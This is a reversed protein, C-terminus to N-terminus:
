RFLPGPPRNDIEIQVCHVQTKLLSAYADLVITRFRESDEDTFGNHCHLSHAILPKDDDDLFVGGLPDLLNMSPLQSASQRNIEEWAKQQTVASAAISSQDTPTVFGTADVFVSLYNKNSSM